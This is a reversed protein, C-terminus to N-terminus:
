GTMHRAEAKDASQAPVGTAMDLICYVLESV